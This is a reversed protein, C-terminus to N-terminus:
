DSRDADIRNGKQASGLIENPFIQVEYEDGLNEEVYEKFALLGIHEPDDGVTRPFHPYNEKWGHFSDRRSSSACGATGLLLAACLGASIMRKIARM